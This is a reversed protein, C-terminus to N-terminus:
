IIKRGKITKSYKYRATRFKKLVEKKSEESLVMPININSVARKFALNLGADHTNNDHPNHIACGAVPISIGKRLSVFSYFWAENPKSDSQTEIQSHETIEWEGELEKWWPNVAWLSPIERGVYLDEGPHFKIYMKYKM